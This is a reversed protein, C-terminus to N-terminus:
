FAWQLECFAEHKAWLALTQSRTEAHKPLKRCLIRPNRYSRLPVPSGAYLLSVLWCQWPEHCARDILGSVLLASGMMVCALYANVLM